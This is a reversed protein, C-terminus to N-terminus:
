KLDPCTIAPILVSKYTEPTKRRLLRIGDQRAFHWKSKRVVAVGSSNNVGHVKVYNSTPPEFDRVIGAHLVTATAVCTLFGFLVNKMEREERLNFYFDGSGM